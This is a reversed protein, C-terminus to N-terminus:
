KEFTCTSWPVMLVLYIWFERIVREKRRRRRRWGRQVRIYIWEGSLPKEKEDEIFLKCSGLIYAHAATCKYGFLLVTEEEEKANPNDDVIKNEADGLANNDWLAYSPSAGFTSVHVIKTRDVRKLIDM